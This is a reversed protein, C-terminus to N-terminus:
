RWLRGISSWRHDAALVPITFSANGYERQLDDIVTQVENFTTAHIQVITQAPDAKSVDLNVITGNDATVTVSV